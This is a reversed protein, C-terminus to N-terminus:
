SRSLSRWATYGGILDSVDGHGTAALVSAAISSRYGSACYVVVPRDLPIEGLRDRLQPLPVNSSGEVVGDECEGPNRVDLVFVASEALRAALEPVTLRSGRVGLGSDAVAHGVGGSLHGVVRDFGIRALRVKAETEQGPECVLIIEDSPDIVDGAFEAFRGGLGVNISGALHGAAFPGPDRTDLIVTGARALDVLEELGLAAPPSEEDLLPHRERNLHADYGFYAPAIPQGETVAAVFEEVSLSLAYNTRRQDGITSSREESLRKGCASGAGHAPFVRTADPLVLLKSHLSQHLHRALEDAGVDGGVTLDPRGVDGIFLTDGTLVGFPESDGATEYIVISISEPTHGPTALIELRVGGLDLTTGDGLLELDFDAVAGEGYSIAAGTAAALELHGSIFDAHFHTEIVREIQLGALRADELYGSVDRQPDVVVARGTTEDGVLYSAHSLCTLFYQHFIM